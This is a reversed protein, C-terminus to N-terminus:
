ASREASSQGSGAVEYQGALQQATQAAIRVAEPPAVVRAETGFTMAWRVVEGLDYAPLTIAASGDPRRIVRQDQHWSRATAAAAIAASLEVTVDIRPRTKILGVAGVETYAAPIARRVFTGARTIDGLIADLAFLRWDRARTDYAVLYYRGSHFIVAHPEVTRQREQGDRRRYRFAVRACDATAKRLTRYVRGVATDDIPRPVAIRLFPDAVATDGLERLDAAVPDGLAAAVAQLVAGLDSKSLAGPALKGKTGLLRVEGRHLRSIRFGYRDGLKRLKALDRQLTKEGATFMQHYGALSVRGHQFLALALWFLRTTPGSPEDAPLATEPDSWFTTQVLERERVAPPRASASV